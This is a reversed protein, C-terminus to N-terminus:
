FKFSVGARVVDVTSQANTNFYVAGANSISFNVATKAFDYHLYEARWLWHDWVKGEVGAGAVWGFENLNTSQGLTVPGLALVGPPVTASFDVSAHGWAAGGTGYLLLSPTVLYGLRARATALMDLKSTLTASAGGGTITQSDSIDAADVDAELGAVVAGYQWNYGFHGGAVWGSGKPAPFLSTFTVGTLTFPDAVSTDSWGYGGHGGLYFGTWDSAIPAPAIPAKNIPPLDAAMATSMLAALAVTTLLTTKM